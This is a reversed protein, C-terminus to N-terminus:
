NQKDTVESGNLMVADWQNMERPSSGVRMKKQLCELSAVRQLSRTRDMKTDSRNIITGTADIDSPGIFENTPEWLFHTVGEKATVVTGDSIRDPPGLSFSCYLEDGLGTGTVRKVTDEAMKVKARLTEVDAKLVRKDVSANNYKQTLDTLRKLLSSNEVRLQLVEAELDNTHAQKRRRSRRASERNSLMRRMRKANTPDMDDTIENDGELEMDEENEESLEKSSCSNASTLGIGNSSPQLGLLPSDKSGMSKAVAACYMDLKKKLVVAYEEPDVDATTPPQDLPQSAKIEVGDEGSLPPGDAEELFKQFCIESSSRNM